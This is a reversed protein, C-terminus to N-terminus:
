DVKKMGSDTKTKGNKTTMWTKMSNSACSLPNRIVTQSFEDYIYAPEAVPDVREIPTFQVLLPMCSASSQQAIRM